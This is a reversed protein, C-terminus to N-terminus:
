ADQAQTARILQLAARKARNLRSAVTGESVHLEESIERYSRRELIHMRLVEAHDPDLASLVFAVLDLEALRHDSGPASAPRTLSELRQTVKRQRVHPEVVRKAATRRAVSYMWGCADADGRYSDFSQWVALFAESEADERDQRSFTRAAALVGNTIQPGCLEILELLADQDGGQARVALEHRATM